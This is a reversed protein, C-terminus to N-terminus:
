QSGSVFVEIQACGVDDDVDVDDENGSRLKDATLKSLVSRDIQQPVHTFCKVRRRERRHTLHSIFM